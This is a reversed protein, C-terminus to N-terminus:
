TALGDTYAFPAVDRATKDSYERLIENGHLHKNKSDILELVMGYLLTRQLSSAIKGGRIGREAELPLKKTNKADCM